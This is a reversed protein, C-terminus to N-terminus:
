PEDVVPDDDPPLDGVDLLRRLAGEPDDTEIKFREDLDPRRPREPMEVPYAGKPVAPPDQTDACM